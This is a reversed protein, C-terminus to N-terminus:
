ILDHIIKAVKDADIRMSRFFVTPRDKKRAYELCAALEQFADDDIKHVEGTTTNKLEYMM